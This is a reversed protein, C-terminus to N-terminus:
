RSKDTPIRLVTQVDEGCRCPSLLYDGSLAALVVDPALIVM